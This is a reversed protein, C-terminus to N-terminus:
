PFGEWQSLQIKLDEIKRKMIIIGAKLRMNVKRIFKAEKIAPVSWTYYQAHCNVVEPISITKDEWLAEIKNFHAEKIVHKRSAKKLKAIELNALELKKKLEEVNYEEQPEEHTKAVEETESSEIQVEKSRRTVPRRPKFVFKSVQDDFKLKKSSKTKQTKDKGLEILDVRVLPSEEIDIAQPLDNLSGKSVPSEEIV